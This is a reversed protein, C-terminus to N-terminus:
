AYFDDWFKLKLYAAHRFIYKRSDESMFPCKFSIMRKWQKSVRSHFSWLLFYIKVQWFTNCLRICCATKKIYTDLIALCKSHKSLKKTQFKGQLSFKDCCINCRVSNQRIRHCWFTTQERFVRIKEKKQSTLLTGKQFLYLMSRIVSCITETVSITSM